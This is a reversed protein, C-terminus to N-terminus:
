HVYKKSLYARDPKRSKLTPGRIDLTSPLSYDPGPLQKTFKIHALPGGAEKLLIIIYMDEQKLPIEKTQNFPHHFAIDM